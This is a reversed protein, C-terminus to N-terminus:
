RLWTWCLTFLRRVDRYLVLLDAAFELVVLALHGDLLLLPLLLSGARLEGLKCAVQMVQHRRLCNRAHVIRRKDIHLRLSEVHLHLLVQLAREFDVVLPPRGILLLDLEESRKGLFLLFKHFM